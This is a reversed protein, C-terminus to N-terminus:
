YVRNPDFPPNTVNPDLFFIISPMRGLGGCGLFRRALERARTARELNKLQELVAHVIDFLQRLQTPTLDFEIIFATLEELTM